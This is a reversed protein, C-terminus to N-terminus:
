TRRIRGKKGELIGLVELDTISRDKQRSRAHKKFIYEGGIIKTDLLAFFETDTKKIPKNAM